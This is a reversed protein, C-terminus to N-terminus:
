AFVLVYSSSLLQRNSDILIANRVVFCRFRVSCCGSFLWSSMFGCRSAIRRVIVGGDSEGSPGFCGLRM